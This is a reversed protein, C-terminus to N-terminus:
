SLDVTSNYKQRIDEMNASNEFFDIILLYIM